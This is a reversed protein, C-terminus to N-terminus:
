TTMPSQVIIPSRVRMPLKQSMPLFTTIPLFQMICAWTVIDFSHLNPSLTNMPGFVLTSFSLNGFLVNRFGGMISSLTTIPPHTVISGFMDIPSFEMIAARLTTVLFTGRSVTTFPMGAFGMIVICSYSFFLFAEILAECSNYFRYDVESEVLLEGAGNEKDVLGKCLSFITSLYHKLLVSDANNYRAVIFLTM